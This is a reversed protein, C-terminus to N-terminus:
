KEAKELNEETVGIVVDNETYVAKEKGYSIYTAENVNVESYCVETSNSTAFEEICYGSVSEFKCNNFLVSMPVLYGKASDIVVASGTPDAGNGNFNEEAYDALNGKFTCDNLRHNGSKAYYGTAGEFYCNTFNYDYNGALYAGVGEVADHGILKCNTVTITAGECLGNSYLGGDKGQLKIGDIVINIKNNGKVLIGYDNLTCGIVGTKESNKRSSGDIIAIDIGYETYVNPSVYNVFDLEADIRKGNLDLILDYDRETAELRIDGLYSSTSSVINDVLVIDDAFQYAELLTEKSNVYATILDETEGIEASSLYGKVFGNDSTTTAVVGGKYITNEVLDVEVAEGASTTSVLLENVYGKIYNFTAGNGKDYEVYVKHIIGGDLKFSANTSSYENANVFVKGITGGNISVLAGQAQSGIWLDSSYIHYYERDAQAVACDNDIITGSIMEFQAAGTIFVGGAYDKAMGNHITANDVVLKGASVKIVRSKNKADLTVDKLTLEVGSKSVLLMNSDSFNNKAKVSYRGQGNITLSTNATICSDIEVDKHLVIEANEDANEVAEKLTSYYTVETGNNLQVYDIVYLYGGIFNVSYNSNSSAGVISYKDGVQVNESDFETNYEVNNGVSFSLGLTDNTIIGSHSWDPLVTESVGDSKLAYVDRVNVNVERPLITFELTQESIYTNYGEATLKYYVCYTGANKLGLEELSKFNDKDGELAYEVDVDVGPYAITIAHSEGNYTFEDEVIQIKNVDFDKNEGCAAFIFGSCLVLLACMAIKLKKM